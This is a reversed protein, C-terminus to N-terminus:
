KDKSKVDSFDKFFKEANEEATKRRSLELKQTGCHLCRADIRNRHRIVFLCLWALVGSAGLFSSTIHGPLVEGESNPLFYFLTTFFTIFLTLGTTGLLLAIWGNSEPDISWRQQKEHIFWDHFGLKCCLWYILKM